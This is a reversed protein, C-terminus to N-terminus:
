RAATTARLAGAIARQTRVSLDRVLADREDRHVDLEPLNSHMWYEFTIGPSSEVDIAGACVIAGLELDYVYATGVVRGSSYTEGAPLAPEDVTTVLVKVPESPAYLENAAEFDARAVSGAAVRQALADARALMAAFDPAPLMAGAPVRTFQEVPAGAHVQAIQRSVDTWSGTKVYRDTEEFSLVDIQLPCRGGTVAVAALAGPTTAAAWEDRFAAITEHLKPAITHLRTAEDPLLPRNAYAEREAQEKAWAARSEDNHVNVTHWRSWIKVFPYAAVAAIVGVVLIMRRRSDWRLSRELEVDNVERPAM